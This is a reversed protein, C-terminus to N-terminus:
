FGLGVNLVAKIRISPWVDAKACEEGGVMAETLSSRPLSSRSRSRLRVRFTGDLIPGALLQSSDRCYSSPATANNKKGRDVM